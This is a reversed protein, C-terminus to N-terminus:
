NALPTKRPNPILATSSDRFFDPRSRRFHHCLVRFSGSTYGFRRSVEASSVGEVFYARLAEYQRQASSAPELFFRSESTLADPSSEM